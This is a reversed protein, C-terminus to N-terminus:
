AVEQNCVLGDGRFLCGNQQGQAGRTMGASVHCRNRRGGILSQPIQRGACCAQQTSRTKFRVFRPGPATTEPSTFNGIEIKFDIPPRRAGCGRCFRAAPHFFRPRPSRGRRLCATRHGPRRKAFSCRGRGFPGLLSIPRGRATRVQARPNRTGNGESRVAQESGREVMAPFQFRGISRSATRSAGTAGRGPVCGPPAVTKRNASAFFYGIAVTGPNFIAEVSARLPRVGTRVAPHFRQEQRVRCRPGPVQPGVGPAVTLRVGPRVARGSLGAIDVLSWSALSADASRHESEGSGDPPAARRDAKPVVLHLVPVTASYAPFTQLGM